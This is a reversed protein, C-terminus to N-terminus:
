LISEIAAALQNLSRVEFVGTCAEGFVAMASDMTSWEEAPEPNFWYM